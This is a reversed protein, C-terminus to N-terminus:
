AEPAVAAGALAFVLQALEGLSHPKRLFADAGRLRAEKEISPTGYATLVIIKANACCERCSRVVDLGDSNSHPTLKLDLIVCQYKIHALLAEAEERETACDVECGKTQFYSRMANLIAKEDDVILLRM